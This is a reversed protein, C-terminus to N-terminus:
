NSNWNGAMDFVLLALRERGQYMICFEGPPNPHGQKAANEGAPSNKFLSLRRVCDQLLYVEFCFYM